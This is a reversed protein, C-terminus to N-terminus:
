VCTERPVVLREPRKNMSSDLPPLKMLAMPQSRDRIVNPQRPLQLEQPPIKRKASMVRVHASNLEKFDKQTQQATKPSSLVSQQIKAPSSQASLYPSENISLVTKGSMLLTKDSKPRVPANINIMRKEARQRVIFVSESNPRRAETPQLSTKSRYFNANGAKKEDRHKSGKKGDMTPKNGDGVYEAQPVNDANDSLKRVNTKQRRILLAPTTTRHHSIREKRRSDLNPSTRPATTGPHQAQHHPKSHGHRGHHNDGKPLTRCNIEPEQRIGKRHRHVHQYSDNEQTVPKQHRQEAIYMDLDTERAVFPKQHFRDDDALDGLDLDLDVDTEQVQSRNQIINSVDQNRKILKKHRPDQLQAGRLNNNHSQQETSFTDIDTEQFGLRRQRVDASRGARSRPRLRGNNHHLGREHDTDVVRAENNDEPTQILQRRRMYSSKPRNKRTNSNHVSDEMENTSNVGENDTDDHFGISTKSREGVHGRLSVKFAVKREIADISDTDSSLGSEASSGSDCENNLDCQEFRRNLNDQEGILRLIQEAKSQNFSENIKLLVENTPAHVVPKQSVDGNM